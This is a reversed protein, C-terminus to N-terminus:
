RIVRGGNKPIEGNDNLGSNIEPKINQLKVGTFDDYATVVADGILVPMKEIQGEFPLFSIQFSLEEAPYTFGVGAKLNPIKWIIKGTENDYSIQGSKSDPYIKGLWKVYNPIAASIEIDRLNNSSNTLSWNVTYSTEKGSKPPIQGTNKFPGSYFLGRQIFGLDTILKITKKDDGSIEVNNYEEPKYSTFFKSELDVALNKEQVILNNLLDSNKIKVSFSVDGEEGSEIYSFKPMTKLDWVITNDFSRYNGGRISMSSLDIIQKPDNIKTEIVANKIGVPLNNSWKLAVNLDDGKKAIYENQGNVASVIELFPKKVSLSNTKQSYINLGGNKNFTGAKVNINKESVAAQPSIKGQISVTKTENGILDGIKWESNNMSLKPTSNLFEFGEPYEIQLVLNKLVVSTNSIASIKFNLEKQIAIEKPSEISISIAPQSILINKEAFKEFIASSGELRYELNIKIKQESNEEGFFFVEFSEQKEEEAGMNGIVRSETLSDSSFANVPISGSPYEVTLAANELSVKNKNKFTINLKIKEGAKVNEPGEINIDINQSSLFGIGGGKFYFEYGLLFIIFFLFVSITGFLLIRKMKKKKIIYKKMSESAINIEEPSEFVVKSWEKPPTNEGHKQAAMDKRKREEFSEETKYLKKRLEELKDEM